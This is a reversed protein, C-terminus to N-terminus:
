KAEQRRAHRHHRDFLVQRRRLLKRIHRKRGAAVWPAAILLPVCGLLDRRWGTLDLQWSVIRLSLGIMLLWSAARWFGATRLSRWVILHDIKKRELFPLERYGEIEDYALFAVIGNRWNMGAM